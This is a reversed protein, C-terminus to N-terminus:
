LTSTLPIEEKRINLPATSNLWLDVNNSDLDNPSLDYAQSDLIKIKSFGHEELVAAIYGLGLPPATFNLFALQYKSISKEQISPPVLLLIKVRVDPLTKIM